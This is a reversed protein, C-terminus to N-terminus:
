RANKAEALFRNVTGNTVKEVLHDLGGKDECREKVAM